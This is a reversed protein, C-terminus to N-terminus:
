KIHHIEFQFHSKDNKGMEGRRDWGATNDRNKRWKRLFPLYRRSSCLRFNGVESFSVFSFDRCLRFRVLFYFGFSILYSM